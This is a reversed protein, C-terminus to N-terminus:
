FVKNTRELVDTKAKSRWSRSWRVLKEWALRVARRRDKTRDSSSDQFPDQDGAVSSPPTASCRLTETETAPSHLCLLLTPKKSLRASLHHPNSSSPFNPNLFSSPEILAVMNNRVSNSLSLSLLFTNM